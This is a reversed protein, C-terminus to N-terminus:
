ASWTLWLEKEPIKTPAQEKGKSTVM